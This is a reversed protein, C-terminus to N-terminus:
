AHGRVSARHTSTFVREETEAVRALAVLGDDSIEHATRCASRRIPRASCLRTLWSAPDTWCRLTEHLDELWLWTRGDEADDIAYVRPARLRGPLEDLLGSRYAMVERQGSGTTTPNSLDHLQEGAWTHLRARCSGGLLTGKSSCSAMRRPWACSTRRPSIATAASWATPRGPRPPM